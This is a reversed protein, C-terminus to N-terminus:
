KKDIISTIYQEFSDSNKDDFQILLKYLDCVRYKKDILKQLLADFREFEKSDFWHFEGDKKSVVFVMVQQLFKLLPDNFFAGCGWRGTAISGETKVFGVLAKNLDRDIATKGFCLSVCSDIALIVRNTMQESKPLLGTCEFSEGYGTSSCLRITNSMFIVEDSEMPAFFMTSMTLEPRISFLLEEQTISPWIQYIMRKNAFDIHVKCDSLELGGQVDKYHKLESEDSLFNYPEAIFRRSFTVVETQIEPHLLVYFIYNYFCVLRETGVAFNQSIQFFSIDAIRPNIIEKGNEDYYDNWEIHFFSLAFFFLLEYRTIKVDREEHNPVYVIEICDKLHKSFPHEQSIYSKLCQKLGNIIIVFLEDEKHLQYELCVREFAKKIGTPANRSIRKRYNSDQQSVFSILHFVDPFDTSLVQQILKTQYKVAITTM